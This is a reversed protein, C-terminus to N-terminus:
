WSRVWGDTQRMVRGRTNRFYGMMREIRMKDRLEKMHMGVMEVGDCCLRWSRRRPLLLRAKSRTGRKVATCNADAKVSERQHKSRRRRGTRKDEYGRM